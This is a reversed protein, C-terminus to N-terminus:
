WLRAWTAGTFIGFNCTLDAGAQVGHWAELEGGGVRVTPSACPMAHVLSRRGDVARAWGGLFEVRAGLLWGRGVRAFRVPENLVWARTM